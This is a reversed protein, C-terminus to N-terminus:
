IVHTAHVGEFVKGPSQVLASPFANHHWEPITEAFSKGGASCFQWRLTSTQHM